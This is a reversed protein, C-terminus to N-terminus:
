PPTHMNSSTKNIKRDDNRVFPLLNHFNPNSYHASYTAAVGKEVIYQRSYPLQSYGVHDYTNTYGHTDNMSM